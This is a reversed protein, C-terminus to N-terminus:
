PSNPIIKVTARLWPYKNNVGSIKAQNLGNSTYFIKSSTSVWPEVFENNSNIKGFKAQFSNDTNYKYGWLWIEGSKRKITRFVTEFKGNPQISKSIQRSGMEPNFSKDATFEFYINVDMKDSVKSKELIEIPANKNEKLVFNSSDEWFLAIIGGVATIIAAIGVLIAGLNSNNENSM